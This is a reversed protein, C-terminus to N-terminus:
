FAPPAGAGPAPVELRYVAQDATVVMLASDSTLFQAHVIRDPFSYHAVSKLSLVDYLDAVGKENEILVLNGSYSVARMRGFVKGKQEGSKLSYILTRNINDEVVVTDQVANAKMVRFSLNGTDVLVAGLDHGTSSDLVRLVYSDQKGVKGAIANLRAGLRRDRQAEDKISDYDAILMTLTKGQRSYFIGPRTKVGREWLQKNSRVDFVKLFLGAASSNDKPERGFSVMFRDMQWAPSQAGEPPKTSELSPGNVTPVDYLHATSTSAADFAFVASAVKEHQPFKAILRDGDFFAGEFHQTHFVREGSELNWMGGRTAEALALWKGDDSFSAARPWALRSDPLQIIGSAKTDSIEFLGISGGMTEGAFLHDYIAFGAAKYAMLIKKAKVDVVGVPSNGANMLLLYDGKRPAAIEGGAQIPFQDVIEGSPFKAFALQQHGSQFRYGAVQDQGVFTFASVMLEKLYQPLKIEEQATLDYGFATRGRGALLYRGDPSFQIQVFEVPAGLIMALELFPIDAYVPEYFKKRRFSITGAGVDIIELELETTLCALREGTPSPRVQLCHVPLSVAHLWARQQSAIDWKEVRLEKDLFVIATSDPTFDALYTDPADIRFLNALPDRSLVFISSNDQALLYKGDPSFKISRLDERLRPQLDIKRLIGPVDEHIAAAKSEVVRKQWSLFHSESDPPLSAVCNAPLPAANRMAERLRRSEESTKGFLDSWFGGTKGQTQLLRDLFAISHGPDYGARAMAYLGVRDAVLQERQERKESFRVHVKAVNDVFQNWKNLIDQRDGVRTIGVDRFMASFEIASQHTAIHGMEHGLVAALEGENQFFAIMRRFIYIRGGVTGFANLEPADVIYFRYHINSPPLQSVLKDGLKQLTGDPDEIVHFQKRFTQDIVDGLWEEQQDNFINPENPNSPFVPMACPGSAAASSAKQQATATALFALSLLWLVPLKIPAM